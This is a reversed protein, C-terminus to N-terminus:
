TVTKTVTTETVAGIPNLDHSVGDKGGTAFEGFWAMWDSEHKQQSIDHYNENKVIDSKNYLGTHHQYKYQNFKYIGEKSLDLQTFGSKLIQKTTSLKEEKGDLDVAWIPKNGAFQYPTYWPYSQELPDLSLFRGVRPDYAREGYDIQNGPGKIEDDKEKGNFGFRYDTSGAEAYTRYPEVSGFPYYDNASVVEPNYYVVTSDDMSVGYRKDSITSLVNGLHNTLEFLKNGRTFTISDGLGLLHISDTTPPTNIAVNVNRKWIGLRRSGYIDLETQTLDKGNVSPDGYTYISLLNGKADRVYWTTLTDGAHVVSKSIRNGAADYTFLITTDAAKTISDIKGYITWTIGTINSTGDATLEGISDYQYNGPSQSTLDNYGPYAAPVSDTIHDLQNTGSKYFYNLSDMALPEGAFSNNGNRKYKLINGNPDYTVNEQFDPVLTIASWTTGTRNWADMHILRNLQDYQYAYLLPNNLGRIRAGMSSVNGNYLPRYDSGLSTSVASDPSAANSIPFYDGNFYDLM